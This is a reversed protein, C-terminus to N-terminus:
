PLAAGFRAGPNLTGAVVNGAADQAGQHWFQNGIVGLNDLILVNPLNGAASSAYIVNMAGANTFGLVDEDPVGVALDASGDGNFDGTTLASGFRDNEEAEDLIGLDQHWFQQNITRLNDSVSGQLVYVAGVHSPWPADSLLHTQVHRSFRLSVPDKPTSDSAASQRDNASRSM